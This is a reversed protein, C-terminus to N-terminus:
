GEKEKYRLPAVNLKVWYGQKKLHQVCDDTTLEKNKQFRRFYRYTYIGSLFGLGLGAIFWTVNSM